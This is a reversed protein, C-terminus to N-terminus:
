KLIEKWDEKSKPKIGLSRIKAWDGRAPSKINWKKCWNSITRGSVGYLKGIKFKPILYVLKEIEAKSAKLKKEHRGKWANLKMKQIREEKTGFKFRKRQLSNEYNEIMENFLDAGLVLVYCKGKIIRISGDHSRIKKEGDLLKIEYKINFLSRIQELFKRSASKIRSTGKTGDGDYYGLLFALYLERNGLEPLEIIKTKAPVVKHFLLDRILKKNYITLRSYEKNTEKSIEEKINKSSIRLINCIKELHIKDKKSLRIRFRDMNKSIHGDAFIFGLWYAKELTNIKEFYKYRFESNKKLSRTVESKFNKLMLKIIESRNAVSKSYISENDLIELLKLSIDSMKETIYTLIMDEKIYEYYDWGWKLYNKTHKEFSEGFIEVLQNTHLKKLILLLIKMDEDSLINKRMIQRLQTISEKSLNEISELKNKLLVKWNQSVSPIKKIKEM